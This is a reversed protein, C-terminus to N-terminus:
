LKNGKKMNCKNCSVCMNNVDLKNGGRSVAIIHDITAKIKIDDTEIVLDNRKCYVCILKGYAKLSTKLFQKRIKRYQKSFVKERIEPDRREYYKKLLMAAALSQIVPYTEFVFHKDKVRRTSSSSTYTIM